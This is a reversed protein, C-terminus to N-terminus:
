SIPGPIRFGKMIHRMRGLDYNNTLLLQTMSSVPGSVGPQYNPPMVMCWVEELPYSCSINDVWLLSAGEGDLSQPPCVTVIYPAETRTVFEAGVIRDVAETEGSLTSTQYETMAEAALDYCAYVDEGLMMGSLFADSFSVMGGAIFYTPEDASCSTVVVRKGNVSGSLNTQFSGANCCDIVVSIALNSNATELDDLWEDLQTANLSEHSNLRFVGEGEPTVGGHDVLYVLLSPTDDGVWSTFAQTSNNYTTEADVGPGEEFSLYQIQSAPLGRYLFTSYAKDAIYSTAERNPDSAGSTGALVIAKGYQPAEDPNVVNVFARLINDGEDWAEIIDSNYGNTGATYRISGNTGTEILEAGSSNRVFAWRVIGTTNLMSLDLSEASQLTSHAPILESETHLLTAGNPVYSSCGINSICLDVDEPTVIGDLNLDARLYGSKGLYSECIQRDIDTINGDGDIDGAIMGVFAEQLSVCANSGNYINQDYIMSYTVLTEDNFLVPESSMIGLHNRHNLIIYYEGFPIDVYINYDWPLVLTGNKQMIVSQSYVIEDTDFDLLSLLIWDETTHDYDISYPLTMFDLEYPSYRVEGQWELSTVIEPDTYNSRCHYGQLFVMSSVIYNTVFQFSQKSRVGSSVSTRKYGPLKWGPVSQMEIDYSGPFINSCISGSQFWNSDSHGVIRWSSMKHINGPELNVQLSGNELGTYEFTRFDFDSYLGIGVGTQWPNIAGNIESFEISYVEGAQLNTVIDGSNMWNTQPGDTLRWKANTMSPHLEPRLTVVLSAGNTQIPKYAAQIFETGDNLTKWQFPSYLQWGPVEAFEVVDFFSADINTLVVGSEYWNSNVPIGSGTTMRWRAGLDRVEPPYLMCRVTKTEVMHYPVNLVVNSSEGINVYFENYEPDWVTGDHSYARHFIIRYTSPFINSITEGFNFTKLSLLGIEMYSASRESDINPVPAYCTLSGYNDQPYAIEVFLASICLCSAVAIYLIPVRTKKITWVSM